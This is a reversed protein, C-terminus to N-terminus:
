KLRNRIITYYSRRIIFLVRGPKVQRSTGIYKPKATNVARRAELRVEPALM